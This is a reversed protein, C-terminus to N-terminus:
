WVYGLVWSHLRDLRNQSLKLDLDNIEIQGPNVICAVDSLESSYDGVWPSMIPIVGRAAYEVVKLPSATRNVLNDDRVIFGYNAHDLYSFVEDRSCTIVKTNPLRYREVIESAKDVEKTLVVFERDKYNLNGYLECAREFGQWVSLSGAYIFTLKKNVLVKRHVYMRNLNCPEVRTVDIGHTCSIYNSLANSVTWVEDAARCSCREMFFLFYKRIRSRHRLFSEESIIGRFDFIIHLKKFRVRSHLYVTLFDFVSRVYVRSKAPIDDLDKTTCIIDSESFREVIQSKLIAESIARPVVVHIPTLLDM